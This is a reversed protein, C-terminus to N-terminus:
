AEIKEVLIRVQDGVDLDLDKRIPKPITVIGNALIFRICERVKSM